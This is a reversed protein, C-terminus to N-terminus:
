VTNHLFMNESINETKWFFGWKYFFTYFLWFIFLTFLMTMFLDAVFTKWTYILITYSLKIKSSLMLMLILVASNNHLYRLICVEESFSLIATLFIECYRCVKLFFLAKWNNCPVFFMWRLLNCRYCVCQLFCNKDSSSKFTQSNNLNPCIIFSSTNKPRYPDEKVKISFVLGFLYQKHLNFKIEWM